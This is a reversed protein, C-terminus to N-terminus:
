LLPHVRQRNLEVTSTKFANLVEKNYIEVSYTHDRLLNNQSGLEEQVAGEHRCWLLNIAGRETLEKTWLQKSANREGVDGTSVHPYRM